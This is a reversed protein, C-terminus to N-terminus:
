VIALGGDKAMDHSDLLIDPHFQKLRMAEDIDRWKGNDYFNNYQGSTDMDRLQLDATEFTSTTEV